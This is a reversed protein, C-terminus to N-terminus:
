PLKGWIDDRTTGDENERDGETGAEQRRLTRTRQAQGKMAVRPNALASNM